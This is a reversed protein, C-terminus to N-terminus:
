FKYGIGFLGSFGRAPVLPMLYTRRNLLNDFNAFATLAPTIRYTAGVNLNSINRLNFCQPADTDSAPGDPAYICAVPMSRKMRLEYSINVSLRDIPNVTVAASAVHRARDRWEIWTRKEENGFVTSFSAEAVLLKRYSWRATAGAKMARLDTPAFLLQNDAAM